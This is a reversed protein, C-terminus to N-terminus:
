CGCYVRRDCILFLYYSTTNVALLLNYLLFKIEGLPPFLLRIAELLGLGVAALLYQYIPCKLCITYKINM